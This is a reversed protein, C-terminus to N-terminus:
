DVDEEEPDLVEGIHLAQEDHAHRVQVGGEIQQVNAARLPRLGAERAGDMVQALLTRPDPMRGLFEKAKDSVLGDLLVDKQLALRQRELGQVATMKQHAVINDVETLARDKAPVTVSIQNISIPSGGYRSNSVTFGRERRERLWAEGQQRLGEAYAMWEAEIARAEAEQARFQEEIEQHRRLKLENAFVNLEGKLSDIEADILKALDRRQQVGMPKPPPTKETKAVAKETAPESM